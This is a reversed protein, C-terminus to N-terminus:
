EGTYTVRWITGGTDDAILLSGDALLALGAPRGWVEAQAEGGRRFGSAFVEYTGAPRGRDFPVFVVRYGTPQSSNWSGRHSVFAGGRYPAPFQDGDYFVLGIPASHAAFLLDPARTIEVLDLRSAGHQPDPHPGLYAYPWGFFDDQEVRTLYDPVLDDGYGDRENVVVYLDDTGPYFAIGVPNRLGGAFTVQGSGDANFRQVTARPEAEERVNSRSGIAVYLFQGDRSFVINRTWHGSGSGLAGRPTVPTRGRGELAGAEYPVRWVAQVDAVYLADDHFALGHPRQYGSAFTQILDAAGDGDTDRLVTIRGERSESLFVDGNPAVVLYRPHSLGEAFLMARFGPPVQLRDEESRSVVDPANFTGSGPMPDPLDEFRVEFSTGPADSGAASWASGVGASCLVCALLLEALRPRTMRESRPRHGALPRM